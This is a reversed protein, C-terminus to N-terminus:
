RIRCSQRPVIGKSVFNRFWLFRSMLVEVNDGEIMANPAVFLRNEGDDFAEYGERLLREGEEESVIWTGM